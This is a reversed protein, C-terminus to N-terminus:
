QIRGWASTKWNDIANEGVIWPPLPMLLLDSLACVYPEYMARLEALKEEAGAGDRLHTDNEALIARIRELDGPPLRWAGLEPGSPQTRFVQALDVVAHRAMAFTLKAQWTPTDGVGVMVLACTDLITTLSGLWSQNDHQSRFYCLVPYSLHSELLEASWHEWEHLVLNLDLFQDSEGHRRLMEAASSPSGARADLLAINVERRSFSQYLVPLYGIVIALLGFGNAAEVVAITRGLPFQAVIDGYGLTFFTEGSIYLYAAFSGTENPLNLRTGLGWHLTAYGLILGGAWLALLLLLSLPGFIGLYKERRKRNHMARVWRSCVSWMSKYFLSTFRLRRTVRRPLIITEFADWLITLILAIGAIVAVLRM